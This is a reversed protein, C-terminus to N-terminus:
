HLCAGHGEPADFDIGAKHLRDFICDLDFCWGAPMCTKLPGPAGTASDGSVVRPYHGSEVFLLNLDALAKAMVSLDVLSNVPKRSLATFFIGADRSAASSEAPMTDM